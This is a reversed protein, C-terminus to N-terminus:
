RRYKRQRIAKYVVGFVLLVVLPLGISLVQWLTAKEAAKQGDIFPLAIQKTRINILGTDDLLYNVANLLFEKNGYSTRTYYDFGLEQPQGRSDLDNAIVDGDSILILKSPKIGSERFNEKGNEVPLIRNKFASQFNGELLVALPQPGAQFDEQRPEIDVQALSIERPTGEIKSLISSNLLLTQHVSDNNDLLEIPSAYNFKVPKELNTNIPHTNLGPTQPRYFWPLQIYQSGSGEGSAVSLPASYLDKVLSPNVRVGYKFFLDDLNLDRPFALTKGTENRLSDDDMIVADILWLSHGGNMIYQDLVYKQTDTFAVTPKAVVVLDFTNTLADLAKKPDQNAVDLPFPAISYREGLKIFLDAIKSDPLEGNDRLIAIKKSKKTVAKSLAETFAYELNQISSYVLDEPSAGAVNKVLPVPVAKDNHNITAWPFITQTSEKGNQKIKLPITTMGFENFQQAVEAANEGEEVPNSFEFIINSNYEQMEELLYRTENQLKKFEAPFEGDLFVDIILPSEIQDLIDKSPQSLSYRNDQTLDVRAHVLTALYNIVLLAVLGLVLHSINKLIKM